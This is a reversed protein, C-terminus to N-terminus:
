NRASLEVAWRLNSPSLTFLVVHSCIVTKTAAQQFVASPFVSTLLFLFRQPSPLSPQCPLATSGLPVCPGQRGRWLCLWGCCCPNVSPSCRASELAVPNEGSFLHVKRRSDSQYRDATHMRRRPFDASRPCLSIIGGERRVGVLHGLEVSCGLVGASGRPIELPSRVPAWASTTCCVKVRRV